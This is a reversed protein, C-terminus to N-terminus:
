AKEVNKCARLFDALEITDGYHTEFYRIAWRTAIREDFTDPCEVGVTADRMLFVRYGFPAMPEVGGAARLICMDTAFGTYILNEIGHRRLVRDFQGTQFVFPEGPLPSVTEARDMTSLPPRNFCDEGHSRTIMKERWGPVVPPPSESDTAAPVDIDQMAEPHKRGIMESELHCVLMGIARAADMAPRICERMIREAEKFSEPFGMGVCYKPDIAPGGECGINWCHMGVLATRSVDLELSETEYGPNDIPINRHYRGQMRLVAMTKRREM